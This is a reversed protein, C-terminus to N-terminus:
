HPSSGGKHYLCHRNDMNNEQRDYQINCRRCIALRPARKASAPTDDDHHQFRYTTVTAPAQPAPQHTLHPCLYSLTLHETESSRNCADKLIHRLTSEYATDISQNLIDRAANTPQFDSDFQNAQFHFDNFPPTGQMRQGPTSQAPLADQDDLPAPQNDSIELNLLPELKVTSRNNKFGSKKVADQVTKPNCEPAFREALHKWVNGVNACKEEDIYQIMEKITHDSIKPKRGPAKGIREDNGLARYGTRRSIKLRDFIENNSFRDGFCEKILRM